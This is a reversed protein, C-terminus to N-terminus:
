QEGKLPAEMASYVSVLGKSSRHNYLSELANMAVDEFRPDGTSMTNINDYINAIFFIYWLKLKLFSFAVLYHTFSVVLYHSKHESSYSSSCFFGAILQGTLHTLMAFELIFTGVSATCTVTTEGEPVGKLLNVTGYPMSTTTNFAVVFVQYNFLSLYFYLMFFSEMSRVSNREIEWQLRIIRLLGPLLKEAARRALDLLKGECPWGHDVRRTAKYLLLHASLLGGIVLSQFLDHIVIFM